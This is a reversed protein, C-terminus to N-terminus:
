LGGNEDGRPIVIEIKVIQSDTSMTLMYEDGVVNTLTSELAGIIDDRTPTPEQEFDECKRKWGFDGHQAQTITKPSYFRPKHGKECFLGIKWDRQYSYKCEDCNRTQM